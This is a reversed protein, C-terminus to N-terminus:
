QPGILEYYVNGGGIPYSISVNTGLAAGPAIGQLENGPTVILTAGDTAPLPTWTIPPTLSTTSQLQVTTRGLWSLVVNDASQSIALNGFSPEGTNGNRNNAFLDTPMIYGSGSNIISRIYRYHNNGSPAENDAGDIGYKYILNISQGANIPLTITYLNGTDGIQTMAYDPDGVSGWSWWSGDSGEYVGNIYVTDFDENQAGGLFPGGSNCTDDNGGPAAPTMDVTFTVLCPGPTVASINLDSFFVPGNVYSANAGTLYLFRNQTGPYENAASPTEWIGESNGTWPAIQYKFLHLAGAADVITQTYYYINQNPPAEETMAPGAYNNFDGQLYVTSTGNTFNGNLIQVSMDVEFTIVNTVTKSYKVDSFWVIPLVQPENFCFRNQGNDPDGTTPNEYVTGGNNYVFKYENAGGPSASWTTYTGTYPLSVINGNQIVPSGETLQFSNNWGQFYGYCYVPYSTNFAGTNLQEAMDVQFTISNEVPTGADGFYQVPLLLSGGSTSPLTACRNDYDDPNEWNNENIVIKYDVVGGNADDQDNVTGTYLNPYEETPAATLQVGGWGYFTGNVWLTDGNGPNFSSGLQPTM